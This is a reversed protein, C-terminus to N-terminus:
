GGVVGGGVTANVQDVADGQKMLTDNAKSGIHTIGAAVVFVFLGIIILKEIFGSGEEAHILESLSRKKNSVELATNQNKSMNSKEKTTAAQSDLLHGTNHL